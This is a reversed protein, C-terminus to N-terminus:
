IEDYISDKDNDWLEALPQCPRSTLEEFLEGPISSIKGRKLEMAAKKLTEVLIKDNLPVSGQPLLFYGGDKMAMLTFADAGKRVPPPLTIRGRGDITLITKGNLNKM